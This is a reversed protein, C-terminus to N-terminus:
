KASCKEYGWDGVRLKGATGSSLSLLNSKRDMKKRRHELWYVSHDMLM